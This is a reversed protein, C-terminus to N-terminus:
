LWTLQCIIPQYISIPLILKAQVYRGQAKLRQLTKHTTREYAWKLDKPITNAADVKPGIMHSARVTANARREDRM